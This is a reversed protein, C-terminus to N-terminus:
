FLSSRQKSLNYLSILLKFINPPWTYKGILFAVRRVRCLHPNELAVIGYQEGIRKSSVSASGLTVLTRLVSYVVFFRETWILKCLFLEPSAPVLRVSTCTNVGFFIRMKRFFLSFMNETRARRASEEIANWNIDSM